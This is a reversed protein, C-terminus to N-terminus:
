AVPADCRFCNGTPSMSGGCVSCTPAPKNHRSMDVEYKKCDCGQKRCHTMERKGDEGNEWSHYVKGHGCECQDAEKWEKEQEETWDEGLEVWMLATIDSTGCEPCDADCASTHQDEWCHGCNPCRYRIDLEAEEDDDDDDDDGDDDFNSDIPGDSEPHRDYVEIIETDLLSANETKSTFSYDVEQLVEDADVTSPHKLKIRVLVYRTSEVPDPEEPAYPDLDSWRPLEFTAGSGDNNRQKRFEIEHKFCEKCLIMNSDGGAPLKRVQGAPKTCHSGQCNPNKNPM